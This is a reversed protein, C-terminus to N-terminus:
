ESRYRHPGEDSLAEDGLLGTPDPRPPENMVKGDKDLLKPEEWGARSPFGTSRDVPQSVAQNRWRPDDPDDRHDEGGEEEEEEESYDEPYLDEITEEGAMISAMGDMTETFADIDENTARYGTAVAAIANELTQAEEFFRDMQHGRKGAYYDIGAKLMGAARAHEKPDTIGLGSLAQAVLSAGADKSDLAKKIVARSM